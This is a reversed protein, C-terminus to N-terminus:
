ISVRTALFLTKDDDTRGNIAPSQLYQKLKETLITTKAMNDAMGLATFLPVFFPLHVTKDSMNLVLRQLGDTFIAVENIQEEIVSVRMQTMLESDTIFSTTNEYEGNDPWWVVVYNDKGAERVIAGDGMQFYIAREPYIVCGLLTCSYEELPTDAQRAVDALEEYIEEVIAYVDAEMIQTAGEALLSLKNAMRGTVLKSAEAAHAASGAGDSVCCILVNNVTKYVCADECGKGSQIHATGAESAGILKWKM